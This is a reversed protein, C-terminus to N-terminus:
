SPQGHKSSDNTISQILLSSPLSQTNSTLIFKWILAATQTDTQASFCHLAGPNDLSNLLFYLQDMGMVMLQYLFLAQLCVICKEPKTGTNRCLWAWENPAATVRRPPDSSLKVEHKLFWFAFESKCRMLVASCFDDVCSLSHMSAPPQCSTIQQPPHPPFQESVAVKWIEWTFCLTTTVLNHFQRLCSPHSNCVIM